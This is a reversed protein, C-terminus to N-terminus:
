AYSSAACARRLRCKDFHWMAPFRSNHSMYISTSVEKFNQSTSNENRAYCFKSWHLKQFFSCLDNQLFFCLFIYRNVNYINWTFLLSFDSSTRGDVILNLISALSFNWKSIVYIVLVAKWESNTKSVLYDILMQATCPLFVYNSKYIFIMEVLLTVIFGM